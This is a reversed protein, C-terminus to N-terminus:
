DGRVPIGARKAELVMLDLGVGLEAAVGQLPVTPRVPTSNSANWKKRVAEAEAVTLESIFTKKAYRLQRLIMLVDQVQCGVIQAVEHAPLTGRDVHTKALRTAGPVQSPPSVGLAEQKFKRLAAQQEDDLRVM